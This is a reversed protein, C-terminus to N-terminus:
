TMFLLIRVFATQAGPTFITVVRTVPFDPIKVMVLGVELQLSLMFINFAIVAMLLRHVFLNVQNASADTAMVFVIFVVAVKATLALLTM